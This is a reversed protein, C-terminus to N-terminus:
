RELLLRIHQLIAHHMTLRYIRLNLHYISCFIAVCIVEVYLVGRERLRCM